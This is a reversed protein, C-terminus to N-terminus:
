LDLRFAQLQRWLDMKFNHAREMAENLALLTPEDRVGNRFANLLNEIALGELQSAKALEEALPKAEESYIM